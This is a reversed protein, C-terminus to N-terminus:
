RPAGFTAAIVEAMIRAGEEAYERRNNTSGMELLICGPDLDQNYNGRAFFIGLIFGPFLRDATRKLSRAVFLNTSMLPNQRGIVILVKIATPEDDREYRYVKAPPTDRHVDFLAFPRHQLNRVVTRRSRVYARADHPDHPTKDHIVRFGQEQLAAAFVEGVRLIGGKGWRSTTGDTPLYSEDTHSHYVILLKDAVGRPVAPVAAGELSPLGSLSEVHEAIAKFGALQTVRYVSDDPAIFEDGIHVRLGTSFLAEGGTTVVDYCRSPHEWGGSALGTLWQWGVLGTLVLGMLIGFILPYGQRRRM